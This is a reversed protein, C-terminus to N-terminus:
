LSARRVLEMHLVNTTPETGDIMQLAIDAALAGEQHLPQRVTTLQPTVKTAIPHDDFGIVSVDDPIRMGHDRLVEIVGSAIRDSGALVGEISMNRDLLHRMALFGDSASWGTYLIRDPSLADGLVNKYGRVRDAVAPNDQPGLIAVCATRGRELMARAALEAGEIDDSYVTSFVDRYPHGELQGCLVTPIGLSRLVELLDSGRYPSIDIVADFSRREFHRVVREREHPSSAQLLVPLYASESLEETIGSLFAGYTPDAFLESLPETVLMAIAESRGVALARGRANPVFNIDSAIQRIRAKTAESIRPSDNLARSATSRSVGAAAAVDALTSTTSKSVTM